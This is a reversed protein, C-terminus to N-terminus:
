DCVFCIVTIKFVHFIIHFNHISFQFNIELHIVIVREPQAYCIFMSCTPCYVISKLTSCELRMLEAYAKHELSFTYHKNTHSVSLVSANHLCVILPILLFFAMLSGDIHLLRNGCMCMACGDLVFM